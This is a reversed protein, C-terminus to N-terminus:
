HRRKLNQLKLLCLQSLTIIKCNICNLNIHVHSVTISKEYLTTIRKYESLTAAIRLIEGVDVWCLFM